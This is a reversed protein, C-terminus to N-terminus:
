RLRKEEERKQRVDKGLVKSIEPNHLPAYKWDCSAWMSWPAPHVRAGNCVQQRVCVCLCVCASPQASIMLPNIVGLPTFILKHIVTVLLTANVVETSYIYWFVFFFFPCFNWFNCIFFNEKLFSIWRQANNESPSHCWPSPFGAM